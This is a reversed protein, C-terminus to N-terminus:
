GGGVPPFIGVSDGDAMVSEPTAHRGNIFLIAVQDQPISLKELLMGVSSGDVIECVSEEFRNIRLTAFLKM